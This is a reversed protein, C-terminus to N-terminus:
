LIGSLTISCDELAKAIKRPKANRPVVHVILNNSFYQYFKSAPYKTETVTSLVRTAAEENHLLAAKVAQGICRSIGLLKCTTPLCIQMGETVSSQDKTVQFNFLIEKANKVM